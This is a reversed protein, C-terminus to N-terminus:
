QCAAPIKIGMAKYIEEADHLANKFNDLDHGCQEEMGNGTYTKSVKCTDSHNYGAVEKGKARKAVECVCNSYDQCAVGMGEPKGGPGREDEAAPETWGGPPPGPGGPPGSGFPGEGEKFEPPSQNSDNSAPGDEQGGDADACEASSWCDTDDCDTAADGDNDLKDSCALEVTATGGPKPGTRDSEAPGAGHGASDAAEPGNGEKDDQTSTASSDDDDGRETSSDALEPGPESSRGQESPEVAATDTGQKETSPSPEEQPEPTDILESDKCGALLLILVLITTPLRQEILSRM